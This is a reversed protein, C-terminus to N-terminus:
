VQNMRNAMSMANTSCQTEEIAFQCTILNSRPGIWFGRSGGMTDTARVTPVTREGAANVDLSDPAVIVKHKAPQGEGHEKQRQWGCGRGPDNPTRRM